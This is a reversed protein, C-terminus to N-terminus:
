RVIEVGDEVADVTCIYDHLVDCWAEHEEWTATQCLLRQEIGKEKFILVFERSVNSAEPHHKRMPRTVLRTLKKELLIVGSASKGQKMTAENEYFNLTNAKPDLSFFREKWNKSGSFLGGSRGISFKKLLGTKSRKVFPIKAKYNAVCEPHLKNGAIAM